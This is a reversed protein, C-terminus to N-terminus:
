SVPNMLIEEKFQKYQSRKKALESSWIGRDPPLYGLLLSGDSCKWGYCVICGGT